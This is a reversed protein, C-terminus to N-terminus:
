NGNGPVLPWSPQPLMGEPAPTVNGGIKDYDMAGVSMMLNMSQEPDVLIVMPGGPRNEDFTWRTVVMEVPTDSFRINSGLVSAVRAVSAADVVFPDQYDPDVYEEDKPPTTDVTNCSSESKGCSTHSSTTSCTGSADCSKITQDSETGTRNGDKDYTHQTTTHTSTTSGDSNTQHNSTDSKTERGGSDLEKYSTYLNESGDGDESHVSYFTSSGTKNGDSDFSNQYVYVENGDSFTGFQDLSSDTYITQVTSWGDDTRGFDASFDYTKDRNKSTESFFTIAALSPGNSGGASILGMPIGAVMATGGFSNSVEIGNSGNPTVSIGFSSNLGYSSLLESSIGLSNLTDNRAPLADKNKSLSSGDPFSTPLVVVQALNMEASPLERRLVLEAQLAPGPKSGADYPDTGAALEDLDSVGDADSDRAAYTLVCLQANCNRIILEQDSAVAPMAGIALLFGAALLTKNRWMSAHEANM